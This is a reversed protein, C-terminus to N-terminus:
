LQDPTAACRPLSDHRASRQEGELVLLKGFNVMEHQILCLHRQRLKQAVERAGSCAAYIRRRLERVDALRWRRQPLQRVHPAVSRHADLKRAAARKITLEAVDGRHEPMPRAGLSRRLQDCLQITEPPSAPAPRDEEYVVIEDAVFTREFIM